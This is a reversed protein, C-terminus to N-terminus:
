GLLKRVLDDVSEEHPADSRIRGYKSGLSSEFRMPCALWCQEVLTVEEVGIRKLRRYERNLRTLGWACPRIDKHTHPDIYPTRTEFAHKLTM